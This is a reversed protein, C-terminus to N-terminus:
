NFKITGNALGHEVELTEALILAEKLKNVAYFYKDVDESDSQKWLEIASMMEQFAEQTRKELSRLNEKGAQVASIYQKATAVNQQKAICIGTYTKENEIAVV